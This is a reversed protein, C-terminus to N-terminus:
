SNLQKVPVLRYESDHLSKIQSVADDLPNDSRRLENILNVASEIPVNSIVTSQITLMPRVINNELSKAVRGKEHKQSEIIEIINPTGNRKGCTCRYGKGRTDRSILYGENRLQNVQSTVLSSSVQLTEGTKRRWANTIWKAMEPATHPKQEKTDLFNAVCGKVFKKQGTTYKM